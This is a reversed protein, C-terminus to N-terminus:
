EGRCSILNNPPKVSLERERGYRFENRFSMPHKRFMRHRFFVQLPSGIHEGQELMKPVSVYPQMEYAIIGHFSNPM